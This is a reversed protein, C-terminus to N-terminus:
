GPAKAHHGDACRRLTEPTDREHDVTIAVFRVRAGDAGLREQIAILKGTRLPCTDACTAYVFTAVVLKGRLGALGVKAGDPGTLAFDAAPGIRSLRTDVKAPHAEAPVSGGLLAAGTLAM